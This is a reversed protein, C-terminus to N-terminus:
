GKTAPTLNSTNLFDIISDFYEMLRYEEYDVLNPFNKSFAEITFGVIKNTKQDVRFTIDSAIGSINVTYEGKFERKIVYLVDNDEDKDIIIDNPSM